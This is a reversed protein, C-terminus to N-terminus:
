YMTCDSVRPVALAYRMINVSKVALDFPLDKMQEQLAEMGTQDLAARSDKSPLEEVDDEPPRSNLWVIQQHCYEALDLVSDEVAEVAEKNYM